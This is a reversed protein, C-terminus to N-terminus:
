NLFTLRLIESSHSYYINQRNNNLFVRVLLVTDKTNSHPPQLLLLVWAPKTTPFPKSSMKFLSLFSLAASPRCGASVKGPVSFGDCAWLIFIFPSYTSSFSFSGYACSVQTNLSQEAVAHIRDLLNQWHSLSFEFGVAAKLSCFCKLILIFSSIIWRMSYLLNQSFFFDTSSRWLNM